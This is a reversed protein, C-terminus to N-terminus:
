SFSLELCSRWDLNRDNQLVNIPSRYRWRSFFLLYLLVLLEPSRFISWKKDISDFFRACICRVPYRNKSLFRHIGWRASSGAIPNWWMIINGQEMPVPKGKVSVREIHKQSCANYNGCAKIKCCLLQRTAKIHKGNDVGQLFLAQWSKRRHLIFELWLSKVTGRPIHHENM